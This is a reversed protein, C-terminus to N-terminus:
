PPTSYEELTRGRINKQIKEDNVRRSNTANNTSSAKKKKKTPRFSPLLGFNGIEDDDSYTFDM